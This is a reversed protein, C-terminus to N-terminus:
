NGKSFNKNKRIFEYFEEINKKYELRKEFDDRYKEKSKKDIYAQINLPVNELKDEYYKKEYVKNKEKKLKKEESKIEIDKSFNKYITEYDTGYKKELYHIKNEFKENSMKEKEKLFIIRKYARIQDNKYEVRNMKTVSDKLINNKVDEPIGNGLINLSSLCFLIIIKKM